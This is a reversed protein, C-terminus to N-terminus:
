IRLVYNCVYLVCLRTEGEFNMSRPLRAWSCARCHSKIAWKEERVVIKKRNFSVLLRLNNLQMLNHQHPMAKVYSFDVNFPLIKM